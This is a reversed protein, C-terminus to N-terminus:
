QQLIIKRNSINENMEFELHTESKTQKAQFRM